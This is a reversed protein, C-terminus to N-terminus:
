SGSTADSSREVRGERWQRKVEHIISINAVVFEGAYIEFAKAELYEPRTTSALGGSPTLLSQEEQLGIDTEEETGLGGEGREEDDLDRTPLGSPSPPPVRQSNQRLNEASAIENEHDRKAVVVGLMTLQLFLIAVDM